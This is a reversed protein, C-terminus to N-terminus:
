VAQNIMKQLLTLQWKREREVEITNEEDEYSHFVAKVAYTASYVAHGRSDAIAAAHGAARAVMCVPLTRAERAADHSLVSADHAKVASLDGRAWAKAAEIAKKPRKEGPMIAESYHLVHEICKACWLARTKQDQRRVLREIPKNLESDKFIYVSLKLM